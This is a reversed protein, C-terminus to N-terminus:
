LKPGFVEIKNEPSMQLLYFFNQNGRNQVLFDVVSYGYPRVYWYVLKREGKNDLEIIKIRPVTHLIYIRDGIAKIASTIIIYGTRGKTQSSIRKQNIDEQTKIAEHELRFETLLKGSKSYKRIIPFHIFAAILEGNQNMALKVRNLQGQSSKFKKPKGFSYLLEGELDLVDILLSQEGYSISAAFILGDDSIVMDQYTKSIKFSKVYEGHGDFFQIRGSDHVIIFNDVMMVSFPGYNFEGPGQGKCGIQLLYNGFSDFKLVRHARSDLVYVNGASDNSIIRAGYLYIDKDMLEESPFSFKLELEIADKPLPVKKLWEKRMRAQYDKSNSRQQRVAFLELILLLSILFFIWIFKKGKSFM